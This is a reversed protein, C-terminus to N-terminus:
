RRGRAPLRVPVAPPLVPQRVSRARLAAAARLRPGAASRDRVPAPPAPDAARHAAARLDRDAEERHRGRVAACAQVSCSAADTWASPHPGGQSPTFPYWVSYPSPRAALEDGPHQRGPGPRRRLPRSRELFSPLWSPWRGHARLAAAFKRRPLRYVYVGRAGDPGVIVLAWQKTTLALAFLIAALVGSRGMAALMAGTCLAAGLMRRPIASSRAGERGAPKGVLLVAALVCM